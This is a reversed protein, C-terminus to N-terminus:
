VKLGVELTTSCITSNKYLSQSNTIFYQVVRFSMAFVTRYFFKTRGISIIMCSVLLVSSLEEENLSM